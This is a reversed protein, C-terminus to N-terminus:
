PNAPASATPSGDPPTKHEASVKYNPSYGINQKNYKVLIQQMQQYFQNVIPQLEQKANADMVTKMQMQIQNMLPRFGELSRDGLVGGPRNMETLYQQFKKM